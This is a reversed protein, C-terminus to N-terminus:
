KGTQMLFDVTAQLVEPAFLIRRHGRGETTLLRSGPWAAVIREANAYAVQGDERDHIILAPVTLKPGLKVLDAEAMPLHNYGELLAILRATMAPSFRMEQSFREIYGMQSSPGAILVVRNVALGQAVAIGVAAAGMSHAVIGLLPGLAQQATLLARAFLPPTAAIGASRGHAPGDLAVVRFGRAMLPEIFATLNTGRGEWGHMLLVVREGTGWRLARLGEPLTVEEGRAAWGQEHENVPHRKPTIFQHFAAQVM